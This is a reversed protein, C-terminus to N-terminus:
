EEDSEEFAKMDESTLAHTNKHISRCCNFVAWIYCYSGFCSFRMKLKEEIKYIYDWDLYVERTKRDKM